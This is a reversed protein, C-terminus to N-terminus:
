AARSEDQAATLESYVELEDRLVRPMLFRHRVSERGAEGISSALRPNRVLEVIRAACEEATSALFGNQGDQIQVAIGGIPTGIVPARKWMAETVVLGFGERTSRQLIATSATQFANIEIPGVRTPDTYLHIDPDDGAHRRVSEYIAPGEPDDSAEFVGILALQLTPIQEKALRYSDVVEWPNKWPDFRSVQTILPRKMDLGLSTLIERAHAKGLRRNKPALPDIAPLEMAVQREALGNLCFAPLTFLARDYGRMWPLLFECVGGNPASCDIHCRWISPGELPVLERLALPQPDHVVWVDASLDRMQKAVRESYALYVERDQRSLHGAKGQMWNHIRKTVQFFEDDPPLVYWVADVGVSRSLPILTALIEAVGGGKGTANIHAVRLGGLDSGMTQIRDFLDRDLLHRYSAISRPMTDITTLV